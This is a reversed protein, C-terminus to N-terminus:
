SERVDLIQGVFMWHSQWDGNADLPYAKPNAQYYAQIEPHLSERDFPHQYLKRCLISLSAEKYTISDGFPVVTLGAASTKDEDRGSHSGMYGLAKRYAEPFFSITFTDNENLYNWTYRSPYIYVTAVAGDTGPRTWLTGLSGWGVTCGNNNEMTGASVLAWQKHFMEFIKYEKDEFHAM